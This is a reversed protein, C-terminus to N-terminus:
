TAANVRADMRAQHARGTLRRIRVSESVTQPLGITGAALALDLHVRGLESGVFSGEEGRFADCLSKAKM